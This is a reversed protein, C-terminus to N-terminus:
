KKSNIAEELEPFASNAQEMTEKAQEGSQMIPAINQQEEIMGANLEAAKKDMGTIKMGWGVVKTKIKALVRKIRGSVNALKQIMWNKISRYKKKIKAGLGRQITRTSAETQVQTTGDRRKLDVTEPDGEPDPNVNPTTDPGTTPAVDPDEVGVETPPLTPNEVIDWTAEPAPLDLEEETKVLKEDVEVLKTADTESESPKMDNALTAGLDSQTKLVETQEQLKTSEGGMDGTKEILEAAGKEIDPLKDETLDSVKEADTNRREKAAQISAVLITALEPSMGTQETTDETTEVTTDVTDEVTTDVTDEVSLQEAPKSKLHSGSIDASAGVADGVTGAIQGVAVSGGITAAAKGTSVTGLEAITSATAGPSFGGLVGGSILGALSGAASAGNEWVKKKVEIYQSSDTPWDKKVQNLRYLSQATMVGKMFFAIAHGITAILACTAAAVAMGATLVPILSLFGYIVGLSTVANIVVKLFDASKDFAKFFKGWRGEGYILADTEPDPKDTMDDVFKGWSVLGGLITADLVGLGIDLGGKVWPNLDSYWGRQIKKGGSPSIKPKVAQQASRQIPITAVVQNKKTTNSTDVTDVTEAATDKKRQATNGDAHLGVHDGSNINNDQGIPDNSTTEDADQEISDGEFEDLPANEDTDRSIQSDSYQGFPLIKNDNHEIQHDSFNDFSTNEDIDQGIPDGSDNNRQMMSLNNTISMGSFPHKDEKNERQVHSGIMARTAQNGLTRQLYLVNDPKKLDNPNGFSITPDALSQTGGGEFAMSEGTVSTQTEAKQTSNSDHSSEVHNDL